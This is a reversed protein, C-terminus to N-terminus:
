QFILNKDLLQPHLTIFSEFDSSPQRMAQHVLHIWLRTLTEHFIHGAGQSTAYRRISFIVAQLAIEFPLKNLYLWALRLHNRHNFEAKPLSCNEFQALFAQDQM